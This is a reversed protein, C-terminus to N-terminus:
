DIQPDGAAHEPSMYEPTGPILGPETLPDRSASVARAIGFDAVVARGASLLINEPKIDRHVVGQGHAYGLAELVDRAIRVADDIPLQRERRLRDRLTDGEIYPM